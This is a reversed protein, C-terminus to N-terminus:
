RHYSGSKFQEKTGDAYERVDYILNNETIKYYKM